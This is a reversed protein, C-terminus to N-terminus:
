GCESEDYEDDRSDKTTRETGRREGCQNFVAKTTATKIIERVEHKVQLSSILRRLVGEGM